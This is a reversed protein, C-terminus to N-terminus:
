EQEDGDSEEISERVNDDQQDMQPAVSMSERIARNYAENENYGHEVSMSARAARDYAEEEALGEGNHQVLRTEREVDEEDEMSASRDDEAGNQDNILQDNSPLDRAHASDARSDGRRRRGSPSPINDMNHSDIGFTHVPPQPDFISSQQDDEGNASDTVSDLRSGERRVSRRGLGGSM